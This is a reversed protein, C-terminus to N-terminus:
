HVSIRPGWYSDLRKELVTQAKFDFALEKAFNFLKECHKMSVTRSPPGKEFMFKTTMAIQREAYFLAAMVSGLMLQQRDKPDGEMTPLLGPWEFGNLIFSRYISVLGDAAKRSVRRSLDADLLRIEQDIFSSCLDSRYAGTEAREGSKTSTSTM